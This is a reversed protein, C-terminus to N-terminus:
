ELGEVEVQYDFPEVIAELEIEVDLDIGEDEDRYHPQLLEQDNLLDRVSEDQQLDDIIRQVMNDLDDINLRDINNPSLPGGLAESLIDQQNEQENPRTPEAEDQQQQNEQENPRTPEAEDQQQQNEQENPRTPEAEDQQQQNEQEIDECNLHQKKWAKFTKTKTLDKANPHQESLSRYFWNYENYIDRYKIELYEHLGKNFRKEEYKKKRWERCYKNRETKTKPMEVFTQSAFSKTSCKLLFLKVM